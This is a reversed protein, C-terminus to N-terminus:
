NRFVSFDAVSLRINVASANSTVRHMIGNGETVILQFVLPLVSLPLMVIIRMTRVHCSQIQDHPTWLTTFKIHAGILGVKATEAFLYDSAIM